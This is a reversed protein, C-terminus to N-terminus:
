FKTDKDWQVDNNNGYVNLVMSDANCSAGALCFQKAIVDNNNYDIEIDMTPVM